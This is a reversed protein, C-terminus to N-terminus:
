PYRQALHLLVIVEANFDGGEVGWGGNLIVFCSDFLTVNDQFGGSSSPPDGIMPYKSDLFYLELCHSVGSCM